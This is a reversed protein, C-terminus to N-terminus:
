LFFFFTNERKQCHSLRFRTFCHSRRSSIMFFGCLEVHRTERNPNEVCMDEQTEEDRKRSDNKRANLTVVIIAIM